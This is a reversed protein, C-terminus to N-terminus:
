DREGILKNLMKSMFSLLPARSNIYPLIQAQLEVYSMSSKEPKSVYKRLYNLVAHLSTSPQADTNAMWGMTIIPLCQNLTPQNRAPSFMWDKQNIDMTVTPEQYPPRPYFFRCKPTNSNSGKKLRLCYSPRCTHLQLRNLFATFQDPTNVVDSPPLSAPNRADPLRLPDPNWATIRLGWYQAFLARSEETSQDM